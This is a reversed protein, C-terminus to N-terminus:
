KIQGYTDFLNSQIMFAGPGKERVCVAHPGDVRNVVVRVVDVCNTHSFHNGDEVADFESGAVVVVLEAHRM